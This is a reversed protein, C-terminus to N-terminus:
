NKISFCNRESRGIENAHPTQHKVSFFLSLHGASQKRSKYYYRWVDAILALTHGPARHRPSSPSRYFFILQFIRFLYFDLHPTASPGACAACACLTSAFFFPNFEPSTPPNHMAGCSATNNAHPFSPFSRQCPFSHLPFRHQIFVFQNRESETARYIKEAPKRGSHSLEEALPDCHLCKDSKYEFIWYYVCVYAGRPSQTPAPDNVPPGFVFRRSIRAISWLGFCKIIFNDNPKTPTTTTTTTIWKRTRRRGLFIWISSNGLQLLLCNSPDAMHADTTCVCMSHWKAPWYSGM